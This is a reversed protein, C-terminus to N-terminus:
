VGGVHSIRYLFRGGTIATNAANPACIPSSPLSARCPSALRPLSLACAAIRQAALRPSALRVCRARPPLSLEKDLHAAIVSYPLSGRRAKDRVARRKGRASLPQEDQSQSGAAAVGALAGSAGPKDDRPTLQSSRRQGDVNVKMPRVLSALRDLTLRQHLTAM